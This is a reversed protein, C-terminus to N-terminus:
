ARPSRVEAAAVVSPPANAPTRYTATRVANAGATRPQQRREAAAAPPAAKTLGVADVLADELRRQGVTPANMTGGAAAVRVITSM